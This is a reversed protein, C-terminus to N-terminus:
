KEQTICDIGGKLGLYKQTSVFYVDEIGAKKYYQSIKKNLEPYSSRNLIIYKNGSKSRGCVGNQYNIDPLNKMNPYKESLYFCPIPKVTYGAKELDKNIGKRLDSSINSFTTLEDILQKKDKDSLGSIKTNKLINIAEEYDPVAVVGDGLPRYYMDIHFDFQSIFVINKTKIGLDKGIQKTVVEINQPTKELNMAKLSYDISERGIIAGSEGSKLRTNLVNGGELYSKGYVINKNNCLSSFDASLGSNRQTEQQTVFRGKLFGVKPLVYIKGDARRISYDEIWTGKEVDSFALNFGVKEGIKQLEQILKDDKAVDKNVVITSIIRNCGESWAYKKTWDTDKNKDISIGGNAIKKVSNVFKTFIGPEDSVKQASQKNNVELPKVEFDPSYQIEGDSQNFKTGKKTGDEKFTWFIVSGDEKESITTANFINAEKQSFIGKTNDTDFARAYKKQLATAESSNLVDDISM